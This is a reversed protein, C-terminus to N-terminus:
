SKELFQLNSPLTNTPFLTMIPSLTSILLDTIPHLQLIPILYKPRSPKKELRICTSFSNSIILNFITPYTNYVTAFINVM